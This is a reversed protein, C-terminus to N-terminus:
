NLTDDPKATEVSLTAQPQGATAGLLAALANAANDGLEARVKDVIAESTELSAFDGPQGQEKRDVLLGVLKAMFATAALAASPQDLRRALERDQAADELLSEVTVKTRFSM